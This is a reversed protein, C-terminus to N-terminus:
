FIGTRDTRRNHDRVWNYKPREAPLHALARYFERQSAKFKDMLQMPPLNVQQSNNMFGNLKKGMLRETDHDGRLIWQGKESMYINALAIALYEEQDEYNRNVYEANVVGRMTRSAHVLEHFLVEDPGQGPLSMKPGKFADPTFEIISDDGLGEGITMNMFRRPNVLRGKGTAAIGDDNRPSQYAQRKSGRYPVIFVEEDTVSRIEALLALGTRWRRIQDLWGTVANIHRRTELRYLAVLNRFDMGRDNLSVFKNFAM